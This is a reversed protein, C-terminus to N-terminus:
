NPIQNLLKRFSIESSFNFTQASNASDKCTLHLWSKLILAAVLGYDSQVGKADRKHVQKVELQSKLTGVFCALMLAPTPVNKAENYPVNSNFLFTFLCANCCCCCCCCIDTFCFGSPRLQFLFSFTFSDLPQAHVFVDYHRKKIIELVAASLSFFSNISIRSFIPVTQFVPVHYQFDQCPNTRFKWKWWIQRFKLKLKLTM